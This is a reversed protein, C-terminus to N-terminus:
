LAHQQYLFPQVPLHLYCVPVLPSYPIACQLYGHYGGRYGHWAKEGLSDCWCEDKNKDSQWKPLIKDTCPKTHCQTNCCARYLSARYWPATWSLLAWNMEWHSQYGSDIQISRVQQWAHTFQGRQLTQGSESLRMGDESCLTGWWSITPPHVWAHLYSGPQQFEGRSGFFWQQLSSHPPVRGLDHGFVTILPERQTRSVQGRRM